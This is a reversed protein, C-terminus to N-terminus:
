PSTKKTHEIARSFWEFIEMCADPTFFVIEESDPFLTKEALPSLYGVIAVALKRLLDDWGLASAFALGIESTSDGTQPGRAIISACRTTRGGDIPRGIALTIDVTHHHTTVTQLRYFPFM